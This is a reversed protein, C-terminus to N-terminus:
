MPRPKRKTTRTHKITRSIRHTIRSYMFRSKTNEVWEKTSKIATEANEEILYDPCNIDMNVKGVFTNLGSDELKEMLLETAEKHLTGYISARTTASSKLKDVFVTYAKDAYELNAYKAEEPFTYNSLWDLLETDLGLGRFSFQPAHIHMDCLGPIILHNSYNKVPFKKFKEPIKNFIGKSKGNECVVYGNSIANLKKPTKSYCIDGKLIFDM